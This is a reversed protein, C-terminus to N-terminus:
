HPRQALLALVTMTESAREHPVLLHDPFRGALVNGSIGAAV